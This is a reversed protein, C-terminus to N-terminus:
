SDEKPKGIYVEMMDDDQRHFTRIVTYKISNYEVYREGRYNVAQIDLIYEPRLGNSAGAYFESQSVSRVGCLVERKSPSNPVFSGINNQIREPIILYVASDM